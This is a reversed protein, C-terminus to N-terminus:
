KLYIAKEKDVAIKADAPTMEFILGDPYAVKVLEKTNIRMNGSPVGRIEDLAGNLDEATDFMYDSNVRVFNNLNNNARTQLENLLTFNDSMPKDMSAFLVSLRQVENDNVVAGSISKMYDALAAGMRANLRVAEEPRSIALKKQIENISGGVLGTAKGAAAYEDLATKIGSYAQNLNLSDKLEAREKQTAGAFVSNYALSAAENKDGKAMATNFLERKRNIMAAGAATNGYTNELSVDIWSFKPDVSSAAIPLKGTMKYTLARNLNKTMDDAPNLEMARTLAMRGAVAQQEPSGNLLAQFRDQESMEVTDAQPKAPTTSLANMAVNTLGELGKGVIGGGFVSGITGVAKALLSSQPYAFQMQPYDKLYMKHLMIHEKNDWNSDLAMIYKGGKDEGIGAVNGVHGNKSGKIPTLFATGIAPNPAAIKDFVEKKGAYDDPVRIGSTKRLFVGCQDGWSKGDVKDNLGLVTVLGNSSKPNSSLGSVATNNTITDGTTTTYSTGMGLAELLKDTETKPAYKQEMQQQWEIQEKALKAEREVLDAKQALAALKEFHDAAEKAKATAANYADVMVGGTKQVINAFNDGSARMENARQSLSQALGAYGLTGTTPMGAQKFLDSQGLPQNGIDSMKKLADQLVYLASNTPKTPTEARAQDAATASYMLQAALEPSIGAVHNPDDQNMKILEAIRQPTLGMAELEEKAYSVGNVPPPLSSAVSAPPAVYKDLGMATLQTPSYTAAFLTKQQDPTATSLDIGLKKAMKLESTFDRPTTQGPQMNVPKGTLGTTEALGYKTNMKLQGSVDAPSQSTFNNITKSNKLLNGVNIDRAKLADASSMTQAKLSTKQQETLPNGLSDTGKALMEAATLTAM